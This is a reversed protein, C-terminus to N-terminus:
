SVLYCFPKSRARFCWNTEEGVFRVCVRSHFMAWSTSYKCTVDPLSKRPSDSFKLHPYAECLLNTSRQPELLNDKSASRSGSGSLKSLLKNKGKSTSSSANLDQKKSRAKRSLTAYEEPLAHPNSSAGSHPSLTLVRDTSDNIVDVAPQNPKRPPLQPSDMATDSGQFISVVILTPM